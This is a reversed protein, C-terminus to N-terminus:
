ENLKKLDTRLEAIIKEKEKLQEQLALVYKQAYVIDTYLKGITNYLDETNM